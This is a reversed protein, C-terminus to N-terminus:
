TKKQFGLIYSQFNKLNSFGRWLFNNTQWYNNKLLMWQLWNKDVSSCLINLSSTTYTNESFISPTRSINVLIRLFKIVLPAGVLIENFEDKFLIQLEGEFIQYSNRNETEEVIKFNISLKIMLPSINLLCKCVVIWYKFGLNKAYPEFLKGATPRNVLM